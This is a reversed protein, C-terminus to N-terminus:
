EVITEPFDHKVTAIERDVANKVSSSRHREFLAIVPQVNPEDLRRMPTLSALQRDGVV